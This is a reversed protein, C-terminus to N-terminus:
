SRYDTPEIRPNSWVKLTIDKVAAPAVTEEWPRQLALRIKLPSQARPDIQFTFRRRGGTGDQPPGGTVFEDEVVKLSRQTTRDLRVSWLYGTSGSNEPLELSFKTGALANIAVKDGFLVQAGADSEFTLPYPDRGRDASGWSLTPTWTTQLMNM